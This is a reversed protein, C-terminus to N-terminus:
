RKLFVLNRDEILNPVSYLVVITDIGQERAYDAASLKYYRLDMLHVESFSQALFPALADAYSDRILLIKQDSSAAPNRIVCLPQNGGLFSAYQDKKTLYSREYLAAEEPQGSRWSTVELGSGDVWYEISDPTLWHIGSTSYLTGNFGTSVIEPTFSEQPPVEDGRGLAELIATYGYYAGLTTWHHDSRYFVPEDAHEQLIGLLDAQLLGTKEGAERIWAAQDWNGADKPLRDKWIEAASPILGLVVRAQTREALSQIYGLNKEALDGEPEKVHSLLTEDKGLYVGNFERKGILWEVRAKAGTWEDRAPFQDAIYREVEEMFSGDLVAGWSFAPLQQLTRNEVDSRARDPLLLQWVMIGGLFLCFLGSLLRDYTKEKM